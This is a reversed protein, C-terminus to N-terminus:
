NAPPPISASAAFDPPDLLLAGWSLGAGIAAWVVSGKEAPQSTWAAPLSVSGLNGTHATDSRIREQPLGLRRALLGPLRGNGGHVYVAELDSAALPRIRAKPVPDIM